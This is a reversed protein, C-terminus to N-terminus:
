IEKAARQAEARANSFFTEATRQAAPLMYPQAAMKSPGYEVMAAYPAAAVASAAHEGGPVVGISGRLAGTDVPVIRQAIGACQAASAYVAGAGVNEMAPVLNKLRAVTKKIGGIVADERM